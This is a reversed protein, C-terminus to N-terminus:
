FLVVWIRFQAQIMHGGILMLSDEGVNAGYVLIQWFHFATILNIDFQCMMSYEMFM